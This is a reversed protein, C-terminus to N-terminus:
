RRCTIGHSVAILKSEAERSGHPDDFGMDRLLKVAVPVTALVDDMGEGGAGGEGTGAYQKVLESIIDSGTRGGRGRAGGSPSLLGLSGGPSLPDMAAANSAMVIMYRRLRMHGRYVSGSSGRGLLGRARDVEVDTGLVLNLLPDARAVEPLIHQQPRVVRMAAAAGQQAERESGAASDSVAASPSGSPMSPRGSSTSASAARQGSTLSSSGTAAGGSSSSAAGTSMVDRDRGAGRGYGGSSASAISSTNTHRTGHTGVSSTNTHATSSSSGTMRTTNGGDSEPIEDDEPVRAAELFALSAALTSAARGSSKAKAPLAKAGAAAATAASASATAAVVFPSRAAPRTHKGGDGDGGGILAAAEAAGAASVGALSSGPASSSPTINISSSAGVTLSSATTTNTHTHTGRSSSGAYSSTGATSTSTSSTNTNTDAPTNSLPAASAKAGYPHRPHGHVGSFPAASLESVKDQDEADAQQSQAQEPPTNKGQGALVPEHQHQRQHEGEEGDIM